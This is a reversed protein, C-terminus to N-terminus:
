NRNRAVLSLSDATALSSELFVWSERSRPARSRESSGDALDSDRIAPFVDANGLPPPQHEEAQAIPGPSSLKTAEIHNM